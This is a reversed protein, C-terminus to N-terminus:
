YRLLVELSDNYRSIFVALFPSFIIESTETDEEKGPSLLLPRPSPSNLLTRQYCPLFLSSLLPFYFWRIAALGVM